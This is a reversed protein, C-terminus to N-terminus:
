TSGAKAMASKVNMVTSPSCDLLQAIKRISYPGALMDSIKQHLIKNPAKGRYRGAAKAKEVGQRQVHRRREYDKRAFAAMLDLMMNTIAIQMWALMPDGEIPKLAAWTMPMDAAVIRLGASEIDARLRKWDDHEHRSLRDVAECLLVEGEQAESILRQLEPRGVLTGSENEVYFTTIKANHSSVFAKLQEKARSADQEKTSARLYARIIM